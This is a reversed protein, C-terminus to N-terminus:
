LTRVKRQLTGEEKHFPYKKRSHAGSSGCSLVITKDSIEAGLGMRAGFGSVRTKYQQAVRDVKELYGTMKQGRIYGM